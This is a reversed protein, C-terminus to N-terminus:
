NMACEMDKEKNVTWPLLSLFQSSMDATSGMIYVYRVTLKLLIYPLSFAFVHLLIKNLLYILYM